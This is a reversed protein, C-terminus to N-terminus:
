GWRSALRGPPRPREGSGRCSQHEERTAQVAAERDVAVVTAEHSSARAPDRGPEHDEAEVDRMGLDALEPGGELVRALHELAEADVEPAHRRVEAVDDASQSGPCPVAIAALTWQKAPCKSVARTAAVASPRRREIRGPAGVQEGVPSSLLSRTWTTVSPSSAQSSQVFDDQDGLPGLRHAPEPDAELAVPSVAVAACHVFHTIVASVQEEGVAKGSGDVSRWGSGSCTRRRGSRPRHSTRTM